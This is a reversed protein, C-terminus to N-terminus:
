AAASGETLEIAAKTAELVLTILYEREDPTLPRNTDIKGILEAAQEILEERM